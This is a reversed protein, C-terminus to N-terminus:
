SWALQVSIHNHVYKLEDREKKKRQEEKERKKQEQLQAKRENREERDRAEKEVALDPFREAKTKELRNIIENIKKEVAVIKVQLLFLVPTLCQSWILCFQKNPHQNLHVSMERDISDLRDSM